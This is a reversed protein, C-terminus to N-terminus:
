GGTTGSSSPVHCVSLILTCPVDSLDHNSSLGICSKVNDSGTDPFIPTHDLVSLMVSNSSKTTVGIALHSSGHSQIDSEYRDHQQRRGRAPLRGRRIPLRRTLDRELALDGRFRRPHHLLGRPEGLRT